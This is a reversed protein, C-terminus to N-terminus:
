DGTIQSLIFEARFSWKSVTRIVALFVPVYIWVRCLRVNIANIDTEIYDYRM